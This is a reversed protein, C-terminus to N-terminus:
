PSMHRIQPLYRLVIIIVLIIYVVGLIIGFIALNRGQEPGGPKTRRLALWGFIIAVAAKEIGIVQIFSLLGIVLRAVAFANLNSKQQEEM